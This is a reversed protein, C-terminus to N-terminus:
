PKAGKRDSAHRMGQFERIRQRQSDSLGNEMGYNVNEEFGSQEKGDFRYLKKLLDWLRGIEDAPFEHFVDAFFRLSSRSCSLFVERGTETVRINIARKDTKSPATTLYGSRELSTVLQRVSQKTAGLKRAIGNLTAGDEPLHLIAVIVMVQRVTLKKLYRDGAAQLKNTVSFLTSITQQMLFLEELIDM